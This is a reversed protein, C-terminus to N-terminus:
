GTFRPDLWTPDLDDVGACGLLRLTRVLETRLLDLVLEVGAQAGVALGYLYPRGILVARAGLALARAVDAGSRVGGDLLVTAGGGVEAVVEPLADVAAPTADFQRGGHNSVIVGDVGLDVARRADAGSLLGKVLLPGPWRDRVAAVDSWALPERIMQMTAEDAPVPGGDPGLRTFNPQALPFGARAFRWSWGPRTIVKPALRLVTGATVKNIPMGGPQIGGHRLDRLRQAGTPTDM